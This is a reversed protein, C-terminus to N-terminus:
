EGDSVVGMKALVGFAKERVTIEDCDRMVGACTTVVLRRLEGREQDTMSAVASELRERSLIDGFRMPVVYLPHAMQDAVSIAWDVADQYEEIPQPSTHFVGERGGDASSGFWVVQVFADAPEPDDCVVRNNNTKVIPM